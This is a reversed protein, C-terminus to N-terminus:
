KSVKHLVAVLVSFCDLPYSLALTSHTDYEGFYSWAIHTSSLCLILASLLVRYGFVFGRRCGCLLINMIRFVFDWFIGRALLFDIAERTPAGKPHGKGRALFRREFEIPYLDGM